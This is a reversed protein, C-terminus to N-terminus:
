FPLEEEEAQSEEKKEKKNFLVHFANIRTAPKEKDASKYQMLKGAVMVFDGVGLYKIREVQMDGWILVPIFITSENGNRKETHALTFQFGHKGKKTTFEGSINSVYGAITITNIM